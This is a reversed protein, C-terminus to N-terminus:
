SSYTLERKDEESREGIWGHLVDNWILYIIEPENEKKMRWPLTDDHVKCNLDASIANGDADQIYDGHM